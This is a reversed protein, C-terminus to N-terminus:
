KSQNPVFIIPYGRQCRQFSRQNEPTWLLLINTSRYAAFYALFWSNLGCGVLPAGIAVALIGSITAVVIKPTDRLLSKLKPWFDKKWTKPMSESETNM